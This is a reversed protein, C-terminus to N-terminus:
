LKLNGKVHEKRLVQKNHLNFFLELQSKEKFLIDLLLCLTYNFCASRLANTVKALKVGMM